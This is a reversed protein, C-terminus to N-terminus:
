KIIKNWYRYSNMSDCQCRTGNICGLHKKYGEPSLNLENKNVDGLIKVQNHCEKIIGDAYCSLFTKGPNWMYNDKTLPDLAHESIFDRNKGLPMGASEETEWLTGYSKGEWVGKFMTIDYKIDLDDLLQKYKYFTNNKIMRPHKVFNVFFRDTYQKMFNINEIFEDADRFEPHYGVKWSVNPLLLLDKHKKIAIINSLMKVRNTKSIEKVAEDIGPVILPEGGSIVIDWGQLHTKIFRVLNHLNMAVNSVPQGHVPDQKNKRNRAICAEDTDPVRCKIPNYTVEYEGDPRQQIPHVDPNSSLPPYLWGLTQVGEDDKATIFEETSAICYDCLSKVSKHKSSRRGM